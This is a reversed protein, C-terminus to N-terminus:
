PTIKKQEVSPKKYLILLATVTGCTFLSLLFGVMLLYDKVIYAHLVTFLQIGNFGAFTLLSVGMTCKTRYLQIAQPVFLAANVFLGVGFVINIVYVLFQAM